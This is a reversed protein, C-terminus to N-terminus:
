GVVSSHRLVLAAPLNAGAAVHAWFGAEAGLLGGALAAIGAVASHRLPRGAVAVLLALASGVALGVAAGPLFVEPEYGWVLSSDVVGVAAGIAAAPLVWGGGAAVWARRVAAAARADTVSAEASNRM